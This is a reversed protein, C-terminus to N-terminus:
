KFVMNKLVVEIADFRIPKSIYDNMGANLCEQRDEPRANATMAIIQPQKSLEKRIQRTAELGDMEPMQVDMFVVDYLQKQTAKVAELGNNAVDAQYGLKELLKLAIKQNVLGDEVLLIKLPLKEAFKHDHVPLNQPETRSYSLIKTSCNGSQKSWIGRAVQLLTNHLQYHRLPKQLFATFETAIPQHELNQKGQSSLMILTLDRQNPIARIKETLNIHHFDPSDIDIIAIQFSNEQMYHLTMNSSESSKVDLGMNQLQWTLCNRLKANGVALLLKKNTLEPEIHSINFSAPHVQLIATFYFTSGKGEESEVWMRGGMIESLRKGIALGLGTGGYRRTTSVDVQSFAQFLRDLRDRPIGVGTDSIAFQLECDHQSNEEPSIQQQTSITVLIEGDTTFKVANSVLNLIIQRLRTIDGIIQTPTHSELKYILEIGKATAQSALLDLAEEVCVRLDFPHKELELKGSEIKSFDLIDNIITLLTDGSNRITEVYDLQEPKLSTDLLLNTMGIIGNMPTRIEHSMVALFDSKAFNAAEAAQKAIKLVEEAQKRDSIDLHTGVMRLPKGKRDRSVLKGRDLIWKWKGSKTRLRIEAEYVPTKGKLHAILRQQMSYRDDPHILSNRAQINNELEDPEYDLISFYHKSRYVDGTQLNWDWLGEEVADLALKLQEESKRLEGRQTTLKTNLKKADALSANKAQLLFLYDSISDHLPFDNINLGLKKLDSIDTIWPSALFLLTDLAELYIMQGKLQIDQHHCQLLFLSRTQELIAEFSTSCKPRNIQFHLELPANLIDISELLRQIVQGMQIVKMERNIMLHFPFLSAFQDFNLSFKLQGLETIPENTM